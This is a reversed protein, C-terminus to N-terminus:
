GGDPEEGDEDQWDIEGRQRESLGLGDAGDRTLKTGRMRAETFVCCHFQSLRLDAGSLDARVFLVQTYISARLDAGSLDARTFDADTFDADAFDWWCLVSESFDTNKFSIHHLYSRGFFTRPLTMNEMRALDGPQEGGIGSKYFSVGLTEDDAQPLSPPLPPLDGEEILGWEQLERCSEEYSLREM